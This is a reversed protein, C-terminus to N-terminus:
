LGAALNANIAAVFDHAPDGIGLNECGQKQQAATLVQAAAFSVMGADAQANAVIQDALEKLTDAAAGSGGILATVASNIQSQIKVGSWTATTSTSGDDIVAAAASVISAKLENVAAVLNSKNTTTLASVDGIMGKLANSANVLRMLAAATNQQQTNAAM